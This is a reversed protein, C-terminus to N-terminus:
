PEHDIPGFLSVGEARAAEALRRVLTALPLQEMLALAHDAADHASLRYYRSLRVVEAEDGAGVLTLPLGRLRALASHILDASIRGHREANM